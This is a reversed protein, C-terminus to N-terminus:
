PHDVGTLLRRCAGPRAGPRPQLPAWAQGRGAGRLSAPCRSVGAHWCLNHQSVPRPPRRWSSCSTANLKLRWQSSPVLQSFPPCSAPARVQFLFLPDRWPVSPLLFRPAPSPGLPPVPFAANSPSKLDRLLRLGGDHRGLSSGSPLPQKQLLAASASPEQLM